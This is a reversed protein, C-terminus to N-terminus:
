AVRPVRQPASPGARLGIWQLEALLVVAAAQALVWSTGWATPAVVGAALVVVCGVAWAGNGVIFLGVWARPVPRRTGVWAALAAFGLLFAGTGALLGAPLGLTASLWGTAGLQLAGTAVCSAADALLVHRLFNPSQAFRLRRAYPSDSM